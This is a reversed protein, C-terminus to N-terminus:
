RKRPRFTITVKSTVTKGDAVRTAVLTAKTPKTIRKGAATLPLKVTATGGAKVTYRADALVGGAGKGAINQTVKATGLCKGAKADCAVSLGVSPKAKTGTAVLTRDAPLVVRTGDVALTNGVIGTSGALGATVTESVDEGETFAGASTIITATVACTIPKGVDAPKVSYTVPKPLTQAPPREVVVSGRRWEYAWRDPRPTWTGPQCTLVQGAGSDKAKISPGPQPAVGGDDDVLTFDQTTDGTVGHDYTFHAVFGKPPEAVRDRVIPIVVTGSLADPPITTLYPGPALDAAGGPTVTVSVRIPNAHPGSLPVALRVATAAGSPNGETVGQRILDGFAVRPAAGADVVTITQSAAGSTVVITEDGEVEADDVVNTLPITGVDSGAPVTVVGSLEDYDRGPTASGSVTYSFPTDIVVPRDLVLQIAIGAGSRAEDGEVVRDTTRPGAADDVVTSISAPESAADDNTITGSATTTIDPCGPCFRHRVFLTFTEDQEPVADAAVPIEIRASGARAPLIVTGSQAQMAYDTGATATGDAVSWRFAEPGAAPVSASVTFAITGPTGTGEAVGASAITYEPAPEDDIVPVLVPGSSVVKVASTSELTVQMGSRGAQYDSIGDQTTALTFSKVVEGPAFTVQGAQDAVNPPDDRIVFGEDVYGGVVPGATFYGGVAAYGVSIAGPAARNLRVTMTVSGGEPVSSALTSLSARVPVRPTAIAARPCGGDAPAPRGSGRSTHIVLLEGASRNAVIADLGGDHDLDALALGGAAVGAPGAPDFPVFGGTLDGAYGRLVPGSASSTAADTGGDGDLDGLAVNPTTGSLATRRAPGFTGDGANPLVALSTAAGTGGVAAIEPAQDGDVCGIALTGAPDAAGGGLAYAAADFGGSGDNLLVDVAGGGVAGDTVALDDFGDGDLRAARAAVPAVGASAGAVTSVSYKLPDAANQEAIVVRGPVGTTSVVAIDLGPSGSFQGVTALTSGAPVNINVQPQFTGDGRGYRVVVFGHGAAVRPTGLVIDTFGDGDLDALTVSTWVAGDTVPAPAGLVGAANALMAYVADDDDIFVVDLNGDLNLDAASVLKPPTVPYADISGFAPPRPGVVILKDFTAINGADDEVRLRVHHAGLTAFSTTATPGSADDAAGDDDLDWDQSVISGDDSSTSTFTVTQGPAPNSPSITFDVSPAQPTVTITQASVAQAGDDDTVRVRVAYNGASAFSRGATPGTADDFAGDNDLDWATQAISGDADTSTSTVTIHTGTPVSGSPNVTFSAVPPDTGVYYANRFGGNHNVSVFAGGRADAEVDHVAEPISVSGIVTGSPNIRKVKNSGTWTTWLRGDPALSIGVLGTEDGLGGTYVPLSTNLASDYRRVQNTGSFALLVDGTTQDVEVDAPNNPTFLERILTGDSEYRAISGVGTVYVDKTTENVAVAIAEDFDGTFQGGAFTRVVTGDSQFQRVGYANHIHGVVSFVDGTTRDVTIGHTADGASFSATQAGATSYRVLTGRAGSSTWLEGNADYAEGNYITVEGCCNAFAVPFSYQLGFASAASPVSLTGVVALLFAITWSRRV